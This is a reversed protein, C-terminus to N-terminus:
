CFVWCIGRLEARKAAHSQNLDSPVRSMSLPLGESSHPLSMAFSPKSSSGSQTSRVMQDLVNTDVPRGEQQRAM